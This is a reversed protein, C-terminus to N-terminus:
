PKGEGDSVTKIADPGSGLRAFWAQLGSINKKRFPVEL